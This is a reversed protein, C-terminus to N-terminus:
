HRKWAPLKPESDPAVKAIAARLGDVQRQQWYRKMEVAQQKRLANKASSSYSRSDESVQEDEFLNDGDEDYEDFLDFDEDDDEDELSETDAPSLPLTKRGRGVPM